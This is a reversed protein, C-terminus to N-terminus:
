RDHLDQYRENKLDHLAFELDVAVLALSTFSPNRSLTPHFRGSERGFPPSIM